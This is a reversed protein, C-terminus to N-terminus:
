LPNIFQVFQKVNLERDEDFHEKTTQDVNFAHCPCPM